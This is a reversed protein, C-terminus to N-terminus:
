GNLQMASWSRRFTIKLLLVLLPLEYKQEKGGDENTSTATGIIKANRINTAKTSMDKDEGFNTVSKWTIWRMSPGQASSLGFAEALLCYWCM